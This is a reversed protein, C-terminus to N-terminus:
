MRKIFVYTTELAYWQKIVTFYRNAKITFIGCHNDYNGM